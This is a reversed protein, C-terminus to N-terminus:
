QREPNALPRAYLALSLLYKGREETMPLHASHEFWVFHKSPASVAAFWDSALESNVNMDHRGAFVILPCQLTRVQSLDLSLAGSLLYREAFENGEWIHPVEADTYDPSLDSLDGEAANGHRYAMAGGYFELWRRQTYIDKLPVLRGPPSYPAISELDQIAQANNERRAADMAYRWGRRESEPMNTMQGVGIYAHLWDPHRKALELGLYSGWSHGSVFVKDKAFTKRAWIVMEEADNIMRENTLTPAVTAPDSLLYTKGTARQDWQVVTFYEEWGRSFWWSM